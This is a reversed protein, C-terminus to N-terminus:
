PRPARFPVVDDPLRREAVLSCVVALLQEPSFPKALFPAEPSGGPLSNRGYGTAFAFPIGRRTLEAVLDDVRHGALNADVLAADVSADAILRHAADVTGAPGLVECGAELLKEEIDMAVLPEDEVVLVRKGSLEVARADPRARAGPVATAGASLGAPGTADEPLPLRMECQFGDAFYRIATEGQNAEFTREILTTGFGGSAPANVSPVGSEKWDVLLERGKHWTSTWGIALRGTPVSLAGYKRANTALEHLVLAMQVTMRPDLTVAPGSWSIRPDGSGLDVQERVLDAFEAGQLRGQMLVDHARALADIRGSFSAVFARPSPEARLSARAIAQITALTNKVRHNLENFLLRQLDESAKRETIDRAIKSAGIIEGVANRIPSVALSIDIRRGDKAIRVTDLHEVREGRRIHTLISNEEDRLEPPIIRIIPQGIMEDPEYGFIRTAGANWSTM